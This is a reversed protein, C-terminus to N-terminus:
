HISKAKIARQLDTIFREPLECGYEVAWWHDQAFGQCKIADKETMLIVPAHPIDDPSFRHHDPFEIEEPQINMKGLADFFRRPHAIGAVATVEQDAFAPLARKEGTVLNRALGIKAHFLYSKPSSQESTSLIFDVTELRRRSERLPGAPLLLGNGFDGLLAIEVTRFLGLHQLGDDSLVIDVSQGELLKVAASRKRYVAVPSETQQALLMSEDGVESPDADATVLVPRPANGKYGRSVIGPRWGQRKLAKALAIVVPTKGTGGVTLNGVVVVPLKSQYVSFVRVRYAWRRIETVLAYVLSLPLLLVTIVSVRQWHSTLARYFSL